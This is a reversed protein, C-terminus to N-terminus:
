QEFSFFLLCIEALNDTVLIEEFPLNICCPQLPWICFTAPFPFLFLLTKGTVMDQIKRIEDKTRIRPTRREKQEMGYPFGLSFPKGKEM